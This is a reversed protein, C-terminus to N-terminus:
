ADSKNKKSAILDPIDESLEEVGRVIDAVSMKALLKVIRKQGPDKPIVPDSDSIGPLHWHTPLKNREIQTSREHKIYEM